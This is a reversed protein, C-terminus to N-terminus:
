KKIEKIEILSKIIDEMEVRYLDNTTNFYKQIFIKIAESKNEAEIKDSIDIYLELKYKTM